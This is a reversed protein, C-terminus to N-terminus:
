VNDIDRLLQTAISAKRTAADSQERIEIWAQAWRAQPDVILEADIDGVNRFNKPCTDVREPRQPNWLPIGYKRCIRPRYEYLRCTGESSLVPCPQRKGSHYGRAKALIDERVDQTTSSLGERLYTGELDSVEFSQHCCDSCGAACEIHDRYRQVVPAVDQDIVALHTRLRERCPDQAM